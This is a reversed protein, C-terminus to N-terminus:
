EINQLVGKTRVKVKHMFTLRLKAEKIADSEEFKKAEEKFKEM